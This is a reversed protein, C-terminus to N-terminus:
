VLVVVSGARGCLRISPIRLWRSCAAIAERHSLPSSVCCPTKSPDAQPTTGGRHSVPLLSVTRSDIAVTGSTLQQSRALFALVSRDPKSSINGFVGPSAPLNYTIYSWFRIHRSTM